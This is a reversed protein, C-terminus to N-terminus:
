PIRFTIYELKPIYCIIIIKMLLLIDFVIENPFDRDPIFGILALMILLTVVITLLLTDDPLTFKDFTLIVDPVMSPTVIPPTSGPGADNVVM